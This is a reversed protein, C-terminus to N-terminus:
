RITRRHARSCAHRVKFTRRNWVLDYLWKGSADTVRITTGHRPLEYFLHKSFPVPLVSQTVNTLQGRQYIFFDLFTEFVGNKDNYNVAVLYSGDSRKFICTYIDTQAGDGPAYLYGNRIDVIAGRSADLMWHFRQDLNAEFYKDPLLFYYDVVTRPRNSRQSQGVSWIPSGLIMLALFFLSLHM